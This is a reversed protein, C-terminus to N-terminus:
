TTSKGTFNMTSRDAPVPRRRARVAARRRSQLDMPASRSGENKTSVCANDLPQRSIMVGRFQRAPGFGIDAGLRDFAVADPRSLKAQRDSWHRDTPCVRDFQDFVKVVCKDFDDCARGLGADIM